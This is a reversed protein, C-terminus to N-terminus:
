KACRTSIAVYHRHPVYIPFLSNSPKCALLVRQRATKRELYLLGQKDKINVAATEIPFLVYRV